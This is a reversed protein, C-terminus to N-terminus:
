DARELVADDRFRGADAAPDVALDRPSVRERETLSPGAETPDGAGRPPALRVTM